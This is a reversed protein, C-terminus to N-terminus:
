KQSAFLNSFNRHVQDPYARPDLTSTGIAMRSKGKETQTLPEPQVSRMATQVLSMYHKSYQKETDNKLINRLENPSLAYMSTQMNFVIAKRSYVFTSKKLAATILEFSCESLSARAPEGISTNSLAILLTDM